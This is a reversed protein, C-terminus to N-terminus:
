KFIDFCAIEVKGPKDIEFCMQMNNFMGEVSLSAKNVEKNQVKGLSVSTVLIVCHHHLGFVEPISEFMGLYSRSIRKCHKNQLLGALHWMLLKFSDHQLTWSCAKQNVTWSLKLQCSADVALWTLLGFQIYV